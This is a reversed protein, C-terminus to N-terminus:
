KACHGSTKVVKRLLSSGQLFELKSLIHFTM